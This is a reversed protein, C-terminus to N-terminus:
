GHSGVPATNWWFYVAMVGLPCVVCGCDVVALSGYLAYTFGGTFQEPLVGALSHEVVVHIVRHCRFGRRVVTYLVWGSTGPRDPFSTASCCRRSGTAWRLGFQGPHFTPGKVPSELHITM